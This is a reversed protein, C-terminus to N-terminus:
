EGYVERYHRELEKFYDLFENVEDCSSMLEESSRSNTVTGTGLVQTTCVLFAQKKASWQYAIIGKWYPTPRSYADFARGAGFFAKKFEGYDKEKM